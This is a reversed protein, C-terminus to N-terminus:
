SSAPPSFQGVQSFLRETLEDLPLGTIECVQQALARAARWDFMAPGLLVDGDDRRLTVQWSSGPGATLHHNGRTLPVVRVRRAGALPCRHVNGRGDEAVVEGAETRLHWVPPPRLGDEAPRRGLRPLGPIKM